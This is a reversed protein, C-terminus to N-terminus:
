LLELIRVNRQKVGELSHNVPIVEEYLVTVGDTPAFTREGDAIFVRTSGQRLSHLYTLTKEALEKEYFMDACLIIDVKRDLPSELLNQDTYLLSVNNVKANLKAMELATTDIDNAIVRTAGAKAAAIAAIAGGCGFDLVTRKAVKIEFNLIHRALAIAGPWVTVWFPTDQIEGCQQEWEDWFTFVDEAQYAQLESCVPVPLLPLKTSIVDQISKESM